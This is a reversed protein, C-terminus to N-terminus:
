WARLWFYLTPHGFGFADPSLDHGGSVPVGRTYTVSFSKYM